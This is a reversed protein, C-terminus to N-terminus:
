HCSFQKSKQVIDLSAETIQWLLHVCRLIIHNGPSCSQCLCWLWTYPQTCLSYNNLPYAFVLCLPSCCVPWSLWFVAVFRGTITNSTPEGATNRSQACWSTRFSCCVVCRGWGTQALFSPPHDYCTFSIDVYLHTRSFPKYMHTRSFPRYMHTRSFPRYMYHNGCSVHCSPTLSGSHVSLVLLAWGLYM